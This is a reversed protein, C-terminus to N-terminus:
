FQIRLHKTKLFNNFGSFIIPINNTINNNIWEIRYSSNISKSIFGALNLMDGAQNKFINEDKISLESVITFLLDAIDDDIIIDESVGLIINTYLIGTLEENSYKQLILNNPFRRPLGENFTMFCRSMLKEYGAVIVINLGIFKDLFNVLETIAESGFDNSTRRIGTNEDPCETLQYAEDIFVISELSGILISRTKPGTQGVYQGVLDTRTIVKVKNKSLIGIKSFVFAITNALKTKGVGASGYISINNFSKLFITANKSLSYIQSAINNKIDERGIISELGYEENYIAEHLNEKIKGRGNSYMEKKDIITKIIDKLTIIYTLISLRNPYLDNIDTKSANSNLLEEIKTDLDQKEEIANNLLKNYILIKKRLLEIISISCKRIFIHNNLEEKLQTLTIDIRDINELSSSESELTFSKKLQFMKYSKPKKLKKPSTIRNSKPSTIRNSPPSTIRSIKRELLIRKGIKGQKKVCRGSEPNLIEDEKCKPPM